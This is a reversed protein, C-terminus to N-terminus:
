GPDSREWVLVPTARDAPMRDARLTLTDGDLRALRVLRAGIWSPLLSIEVQHVVRDGLWEYRGAYSDFGLSAAARDESEVAAWSRAAPTERGRRAHFVAMRGDATYLLLGHPDDGLPRSIIVDDATRLDYTRLQWSGILAEVGTM